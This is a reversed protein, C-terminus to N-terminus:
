DNRMSVIPDVRAARRAPIYAGLLAAALLVAPAFALTVPDIVGIGYVMSSATRALALSAVVGIVLGAIALAAGQGVVHRVISPRSAGLAVRIGLERTRQSVLYSIVGYIGVAALLLAIGAFTALLVMYFRPQAVSDSVAEKMTTLGFLPLDQDIEKMITKVNAMVARSDADTRILVSFFNIAWQNFPVYTAPYTPTALDRQKVDGIVGVIEGQVTAEGAGTEATDHTIGYTLFKGIPNESAFYRKAMEQSIVVVPPAGPRNDADNFFRGSVLPIGLASFYGPSTLHVMSLRRNDPTSPTWGRVEFTTRIMGSNDLPRGFTVGVDRTGPMQRVREEIRAVLGRVDREVPYKQTPLSLNFAVVSEPNFGPNVNVLAIFSRILLGAGVLLVVALAMEGVILASRTRQAGGRSTGRLSERLMQAIDPRSVHMAPVLGFIIGTLVALGASFALVRGDVTVEALRPIGAPGFAVVADVAWSALAIGVLASIASLLVSEVMLQRVIRSRGAGLATRVALESERSSARVLLLNAVNACAILLVLMVAGFIAYLPKDSKGVIREHLAVATGGFGTNMEPYQKALRGAIADLEAAAQEMTVGDRIRGLAYHSHSGRNAPDVQWPEFVFPIFLDINSPYQLSAPTVGVVTYANGDMQIQQGVIRPDAGYQTRWMRESLIAVRQASDQDEGDRFTRGLQTRVGLLDFFRAGVQAARVRTPEAGASTVNMVQSSMAAMGVFSTSQDRYDLFDPTSMATPLGDRGTSAIFAIQEPKPYPLPKLLVGNVISFVATTAGIALALTAVAIVTFGPSKILKRASYRIDQLLSDM